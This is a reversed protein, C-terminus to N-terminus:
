RLYNDLLSSRRFLLRGSKQPDGDKRYDFRHKIQRLRFQSLGLLHAAESTTLWEDGTPRPALTGMRSMVKEVAMEVIQEIEKRSM